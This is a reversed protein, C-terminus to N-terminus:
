VQLSMAILIILFPLNVCYMIFSIAVHSTPARCVLRAYDAIEETSSFLALSELRHRVNEIRIQEWKHGQRLRWFSTPLVMVTFFFPGLILLNLESPAFAVVYISIVLVILPYLFPIFFDHMLFERYSTFEPRAEIQSASSALCLKVGSDLDTDRLRVKLVGEVDIISECSRERISDVEEFDIEVGQLEVDEYEELGLERSKNLVVEETTKKIEGDFLPTM